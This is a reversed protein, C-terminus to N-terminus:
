LHRNGYLNKNREEVKNFEVQRKAEKLADKILATFNITKSFNYLDEEHLYFTVERIKLKKKYIRKARKMAEIKNVPENTKIGTEINKFKM